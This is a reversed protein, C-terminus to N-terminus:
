TGWPAKLRVRNNPKKPLSTNTRKRHDSGYTGCVTSIEYDIGVPLTRNLVQHLHNLVRPGEIELQLSLPSDPSITLVVIHRQKNTEIIFSLCPCESQIANYIHKLNSM